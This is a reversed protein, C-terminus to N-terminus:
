TWPNGTNEYYVEYYLTRPNLPELICTIKNCRYIIKYTCFCAKRDSNGRYFSGRHEENIGHTYHRPRAKQREPNSGSLQGTGTRLFSYQSARSIGTTSYIMAHTRHATVGHQLFGPQLRWAWPWQRVTGSVATPPSRKLPM